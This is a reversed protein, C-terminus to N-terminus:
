CNATTLTDWADYIKREGAWRPLCMLDTAGTGLISLSTGTGLIWEKVDTAGAIPHNRHLLQQTQLMRDNNEM